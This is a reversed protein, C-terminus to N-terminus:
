TPSDCNDDLETGDDMFVFDCVPDGDVDGTLISDSVYTEQSGSGTNAFISNTDASITSNSIRMTASTSANYVGYKNSIGGSVTISMNSLISQSSSINYVGYQSNNGGSVSISMNRLISSSSATNYVGYQIDVGSVTISMNSLTPSSSTNYVGYQIGGSVTISMNSLTPSSSSNYIGYQRGGGTLTINLNSLQLDTIGDNYIGFRYLNVGVENELSLDRLSAHNASVVLAAAINNSGSSISGSLKTSNRGSGCIDVYEQMVLQSALNYIGPAIVILYRNESTADTISAMAAVPDTFDGNAEAVTVINKLPKLDDGFMPVVVVSSHAQGLQSFLLLLSFTALQGLTKPLSKTM